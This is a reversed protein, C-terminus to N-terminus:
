DVATRANDQTRVLCCSATVAHYYGQYFSIQNVLLVNADCAAIESNSGPRTGKLFRQALYSSVLVKRERQRMIIAGLTGPM